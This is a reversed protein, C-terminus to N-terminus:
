EGFFARMVDKISRTTTHIKMIKGDARCFEVVLTPNIAPNLYDLSDTKQVECFDIPEPKNLAAPQEPCLEKLKKAYQQSSIGFLGRMKSPSHEKALAFIKRWLSDPISTEKHESRTARWQELEQFVADITLSKPSPITLTHVNTENIIETM